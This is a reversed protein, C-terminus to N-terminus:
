TCSRRLSDTQGEEEIMTDAVTLQDKRTVGAQRHVPTGLEKSSNMLSVAGPLTREPKEMASTAERSGLTVQDKGFGESQVKNQTDGAQVLVM